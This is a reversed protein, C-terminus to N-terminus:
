QGAVKEVDPLVWTKEFDPAAVVQGELPAVRLEHWGRARELDPVNRDRAVAGPVV